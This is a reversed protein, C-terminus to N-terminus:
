GDSLVEGGLDGEFGSLSERLCARARNLRSRVTGLPIGLAIATEEHSLGAWAVLLLVDRHNRSISALGAALESRVTCAWLREDIEDQDRFSDPAGGARALARLRRVESRRQKGIVNNAIGYLWPRADTRGLDYRHRQGFAALFTEASVDEATQSGLRRAAFRFIVAAHRDYLVAFAAPELRSREIIAADGASGLTSMRGAWLRAPLLSGATRADGM